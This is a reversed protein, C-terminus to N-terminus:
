RVKEDRSVLATLNTLLFIQTAVEEMDEVWQRLVKVKSKARAVSAFHNPLLARRTLHHTQLLNPGNSHLRKGHTVVNAMKPM